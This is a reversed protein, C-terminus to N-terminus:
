LNKLYVSDPFSSRLKSEYMERQKRDGLEKEVNRGLWLSEATHAAAEAYRELYARAALAKGRDFSVQAMRLLSPAFGPNLQLARRYNTEAKDSDKVKDACLGMNHRVVWPTPYLPNELAKEFQADAEDFREMSCLLSGYANLVYANRSQIRLAKKYNQEALSAQGLRQHTLALVNYANASGDDVMVAKKANKLAEALNGERMYAIALQVYIDGRSPEAEPTGLSGTSDEDQNQIPTTNCATLGLALLVSILLRVPM